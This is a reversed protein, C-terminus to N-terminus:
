ASRQEKLKEIRELSRLLDKREIRGEEVARCLGRAAMLAKKQSKCFLLLDIGALAARVSLEAPGFRSAVAKMELDDSCVVGGFGLRRRLLEGVIKKSLTAPNKADLSPYLVHATMLMPIGAEIAKRFPVLERRSLALRSRRVVPLCLHSDASTDGHGPFHKGCAVIGSEKLGEFFALGASAADKPRSGFARKGIIPNRRNTDIDLVPAFNLDIGAERLESGMKRAAARVFGEGRAAMQRAAPFSTFPKGLRVVSGGEHDIAVLPPSQRRLAHIKRTLEILAARSVYNRAFLVVGAFPFDRHLAVTEPDLEPGPIGIMFLGAVEERVSRAAM